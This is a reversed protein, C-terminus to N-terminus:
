TSSIPGIVERVKDALQLPSFPKQIYAISGDAGIEDRIVSTTYGSM